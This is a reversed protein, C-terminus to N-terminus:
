RRNARAKRKFKRNLKKRDIKTGEFYIKGTTSENRKEKNVRIEDLIKGAEKRQDLTMKPKKKGQARVQTVWTEHAEGIMTEIANHSYPDSPTYPVNHLVSRRETVSDYFSFSLSKISGTGYEGILTVGVPLILRRDYTESGVVQV